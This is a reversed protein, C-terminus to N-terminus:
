VRELFCAETLHQEQIGSKLSLFYFISIFISTTLTLRKELNLSKNEETKPHLKHGMASFFIPKPLIPELYYIVILPSKLVITRLHVNGM